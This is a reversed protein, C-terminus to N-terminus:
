FLLHESLGPIPCTFTVVWGPHEAALHHGQGSGGSAGTLHILSLM